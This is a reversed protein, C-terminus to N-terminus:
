LMLCMLGMGTIVPWISTNSQLAGVEDLAVSDQRLIAHEDATVLHQRGALRDNALPPCVEAIPHTSCQFTGLRFLHTARSCGLRLLVVLASSM